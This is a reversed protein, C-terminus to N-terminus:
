SSFHEWGRREIPRKEGGIRLEVKKEKIATGIKILSGGAKSVARKAAKWFQPKITVVLEYEEGGYLGLDIPDFNHIGAFKVAEEALPVYDVIFGVNSADSLEYLSWALGDSSDISSTVGGIRSLALGENLRARPLLVANILASKIERPASLGELLIRLGASTKGFEGTVALIDGPRAGRRSILHKRDCFGFLSCNIILDSSENTDGGIIYIGYERAGENLGAAIERVDGEKLEKPLGLSALMVLPSAGKAAFDSINMIVAKRAAQRLSMGPPVDTKGVLMDTKLIAVKGNMNIASVDDSLGMILDPMIDLEEQIIRIIEKEGLM